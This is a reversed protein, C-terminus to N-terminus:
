AAGERIPIGRPYRRTINAAIHWVDRATFPKVGVECRAHVGLLQQYLDPLDAAAGHGWIGCGIRFVENDRQGEPIIGGVSARTKREQFDVIVPPAEDAARTLAEILWPLAERVPTTNKLRYTRGSAHSSPPLVIYGGEGRVDIGPGLKGTSNRIEVGAPYHYLFHDGGGGTGNNLTDLWEPGHAETLDHLSPDGGHRPDSDVAFLRLEGGMRGGISAHPHQTWWFRVQRENTTADKLGNPTRPHKGPKKCESGEPCSCIGDFAAHLPFVPVGNDRAWFLAAQLMSAAELDAITCIPQETVRQAPASEQSAQTVNKNGLEGAEADIEGVTEDLIDFAYDRRARATRKLSAALRYLNNALRDVWEAGDGGRREIEQAAKEAADEIRQEAREQYKDLPLPGTKQSDTEQATIRPLVKVVSEVQAALARGPHAKIDLAENGHWLDSARARMVGDDCHPKLNDIFTSGKRIPTGDAEQGIIAGGKVISILEYGVLLQWAILADIWNRVRARIASDTGTFQLQAGITLYDRTFEEFPLAGGGHAGQLASILHRVKPLMIFDPPREVDPNAAVYAARAQAAIGAVVLNIMAEMNAHDRRRYRARDGPTPKTRTASAAGM